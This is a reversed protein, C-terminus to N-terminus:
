SHEGDQVTQHVLKCTVLILAQLSEPVDEMIELTGLKNRHLNARTLKAVVAGNVDSLTWSTNWGSVRWTFENSSFDVFSWGSRLVATRKALTKSGFGSLSASRKLLGEYKGSLLAKPGTATNHLIEVTRWKTYIQYLPEANELAESRDKFDRDFVLAGQSFVGKNYLTFTVPM